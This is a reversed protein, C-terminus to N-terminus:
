ARAGLAAELFPVDDHDPLSLAMPLAPSKIGRAALRDLIVRVLDRDLAFRQRGLVDVYEAFVAENFAFEVDGQLLLRLIRAPAGTPKLLASVLVNTDLVIRIM